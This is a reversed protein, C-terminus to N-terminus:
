IVALICCRGYGGRNEVQAPYNCKRRVAASLSLELRQWAIATFTGFRPDGPLPCLSYRIPPNLDLELTGQLEENIGAEPITRCGIFPLRRELRNASRIEAPIELDATM